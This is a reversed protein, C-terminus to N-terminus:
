NVVNPQSAPQCAGKQELFRHNQPDWLSHFIKPYAVVNKCQRAHKVNSGCLLIKINVVKCITLCISDNSPCSLDSPFGSALSLRIGEAVSCTINVLQYHEWGKLPVPNSEM